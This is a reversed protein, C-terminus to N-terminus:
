QLSSAGKGIVYKSVVNKHKYVRVYDVIMNIKNEALTGFSNPSIKGGWGNDAVESSLIIYQLANSIAVGNGKKVSFYMTDDYYFSIQNDDWDMGYVHYRECVDNMLKKITKSEWGYGFHVASAVINKIDNGNKDNIRHEMIDIENGSEEPNGNGKGTTPSQVWFASWMGPKDNFKIRAEFYGKTIDLRGQTSIMGTYYKNVGNAQTESYTNIYLKGKKVSVAEKVNEADRRKGLQRYGWKLNDLSKGDFEDHWLLELEGKNIKIVPEQKDNKPVPVQSYAISAVFLFLSLLTTTKM